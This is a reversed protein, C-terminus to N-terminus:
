DSKVFSLYNKKINFLSALIIYRFKIIIICSYWDIDVKLCICNNDQISFGPLGYTLIVWFVLTSNSQILKVIHIVLSALRADAASKPSKDGCRMQM